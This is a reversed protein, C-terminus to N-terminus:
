ANEGEQEQLYREYYKMWAEYVSDDDTLDLELGSSNPTFYVERILIYKRCKFRGIKLGHNIGLDCIFNDQLVGPICFSMYGLEALQNVLNNAQEMTIRFSVTKM